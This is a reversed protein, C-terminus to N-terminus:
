NSALEKSALGRYERVLDDASALGDIRLWPEGTGNRIFTIPRHNKKDGIYADFARQVAISNEISGTLLSWQGNAGFKKAYANLRSPSDHEPDISVSVMRLKGHDPGLKEQVRPFISNTVPCNTTCNTFIFNLMVPEGGELSSRLSVVRGNADMLKVDPAQYKVISLKYDNGPAAMEHHQHHSEGEGAIAMSDRHEVAIGAFLMAIILFIKCNKM